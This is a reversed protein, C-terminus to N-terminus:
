LTIKNCLLYSNNALAVNKKNMNHVRNISFLLM